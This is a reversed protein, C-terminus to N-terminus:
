ISTTTLIGLDSVTIRWRSSDPSTLIFGKSSETIEVDNATVIPDIVIVGDADPLTWTRDASVGIQKLLGYFTDTAEYFRVTSGTELRLASNSIAVDGVVTLLGFGDDWTLSTSAGFSGSNNFQIQTNSGAPSGPSGSSAGYSSPLVYFDGWNGTM